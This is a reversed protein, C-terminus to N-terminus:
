AQLGWPTENSLGIFRIKGARVMDELVRLTEEIPVSDDQPDHSYGLAGFM